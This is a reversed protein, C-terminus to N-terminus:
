FLDYSFSGKARVPVGDWRVAPRFRAGQLVERLKRNYDGNKTETFTFSLVNGREDVDFVATITTGKVREPIPMPPIFVDVLVPPYITGPGGGTGPGNSTGRGTGVGSGVGGGSGPGSGASGDTGSGGGTGIAVSQDVLKPADVKVDVVPTLPKQEQPKPPPPPVPTATPSPPPTPAVEIYHLREESPKELGGTGGRGGGGGGAPGAGGAGKVDDVVRAAILPPMIVLLIVLLHLAVSTVFGRWRREGADPDPIGIPPRLAPRAPAVRATGVPDLESSEHEM